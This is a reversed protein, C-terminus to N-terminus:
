WLQHRELFALPFCLDMPKSRMARSGQVHVQMCTRNANYPALFKGQKFTQSSLKRIKLEYYSVMCKYDTIKM